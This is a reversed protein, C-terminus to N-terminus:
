TQKQKREERSNIYEGACQGDKGIKWNLSVFNVVVKILLKCLM